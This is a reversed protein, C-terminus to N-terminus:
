SSLALAKRDLRATVMMHPVTLAWIVVLLTWLLDASVEGDSLIIIGIALAITGLLAPIGPIIAASIASKADNKEYARISAPLNLTLRATHRLAHWLGFYIAFAVLPPLIIAMVGLLFLDVFDRFRRLLLEGVMSIGWIVLASNFLFQSMGKDWDVIAPNVAALAASSRENVLPILVPTTGAAIAYLMQGLRSATKSGNLRDREAIFATDGVGFHIASMIIVLYFGIVNWSLIAMVALIAILLYISIFLTMRSISGRPLTVLHDLAGHPIGITLAVLAVVIQWGLAENGSIALPVGIVLISALVSFSSIDRMRNFVRSRTQEMDLSYDEDPHFNTLGETLSSGQTDHHPM